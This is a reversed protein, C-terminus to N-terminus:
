AFRTAYDLFRQIEGRTNFLAPSVRLQSGNERFSVQVGSNELVERARAAKGDLYVSVISSANGPPTFMRFGLAALGARLEGALAVTHREIRDVGVRELYGLAAGLQYVESFALTAYEFKRATRYIAYHHDGLEKEVHLEGVRDIRIRELLERRVFFPAVGFGGLLWKYTGSTMCDVGAARVDVPFMGVAQVADAYFLAGHAHALDALPRMDHRFGNQHSVWAVSLLRTRDDVERAFDESTVRGGRHKVIRLAIGRTEELHRYLVFTTNYHLEDIVVNDGPKLDLAAAVINEGESTAFLFGVEAPEAGVLRAFEGRVEDTKALMEGLPIPKSAKREAFTRAAEVVPLPVPAIYASNLYLGDRLVPFDRRVGLPDDEAARARGAELALFGAAGSSIELFRRRDLDVNV